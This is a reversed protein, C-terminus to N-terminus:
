PRRGPIAKCIARALARGALRSQAMIYHKETTGFSAHGLLDKVGQVNVPDRCSWFTAAARRFHHLSIPFGLKQRTCQRVTAYIIGERMPRGRNSAWLFDHTGAGPIRPRFENLYRDIRLSLEESIVYELPRKTKVDEAPIDITWLNDSRVLHRGIRLAALTRRRLPVSALLAIILGNRYYMADTVSIENARDTRIVVRDMLDTGLAYLAESTVLHHKEPKRKAQAAIRNSIALLWSWNQDQCVYRLALWLHHLYISLTVEGCSAPQWRVYEEIITRSLRESPSRNLLEPHCDSIFVLYKSYAYELQSKTRQSHHVAAGCVDFPDTGSKYAADWLSQDLKPWALKPLCLRHLPRNM